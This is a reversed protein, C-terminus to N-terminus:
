DIIKEYKDGNYETLADIRRVYWKIVDILQMGPRPKTSPPLDHLYNWVERERKMLKRALQLHLMSPKM